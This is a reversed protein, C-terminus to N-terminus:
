KRRGFHDVTEDVLRKCDEIKSVDAGVVIVEPACLQYARNAVEFLRRERRAVLALSAGRRAYEYALHKM